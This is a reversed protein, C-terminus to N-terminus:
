KHCEIEFEKQLIKNFIKQCFEEKEQANETNGIVDTSCDENSCLQEPFSTSDLLISAVSFCPRLNKHIMQRNQM